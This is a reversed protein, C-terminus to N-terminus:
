QLMFDPDSSCRALPPCVLKAPFAELTPGRGMGVEQQWVQIMCSASVPQHPDGPSNVWDSCSARM